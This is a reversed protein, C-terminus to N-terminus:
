ALKKLGARHRRANDIYHEASRRLGEIRKAEDALRLRAVSLVDTDLSVWKQKGSITWRAYYRGSSENRLLNQVPKKGM